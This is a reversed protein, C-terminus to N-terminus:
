VHMAQTPCGEGCRSAPNEARTLNGIVRYRDYLTVVLTILLLLYLSDVVPIQANESRRVVALALVIAVNVAAMVVFQAATSAYRTGRRVRWLSVGANALVVFAVGLTLHVTGIDIGPLIQSFIVVVLSVLVVKELVAVSLIARLDTRERVSAGAPRHLHADVDFRVERDPPPLRWTQRLALLVLPVAAVVVVPLLWGHAAVEETVDLKLVHLWIEQPLKIVIWIFAAVAIVLRRPMRTPDWLLRVAEYAIFFYEFTNPFIALVPAAGTLEFALVGILRWFILFRAVALATPNRWNRLTATYAVTLYYVDLAKDYSQYEGLIRTAGVAQFVTQDAADIVLAALIAPLPYRPIALPVLLRVLLVAIFVIEGM